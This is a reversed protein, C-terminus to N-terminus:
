GGIKRAFLDPESQPKGFSCIIKVIERIQYLIVLAASVPLIAYIYKIQIQFGPTVTNGVATIWTISVKFLVAHLWIVLLGMIIEILQYLKLPLAKVINDIKVNENYKVCLATGLFTSAIFSNLMLEDMFVFGIKFFYRLAVSLIVMVTM